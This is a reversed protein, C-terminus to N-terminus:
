EVFKIGILIYFTSRMSRAIELANSFAVYFDGIEYPRDSPCDIRILKEVYRVNNKEVDKFTAIFMYHKM